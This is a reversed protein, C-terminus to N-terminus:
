KAWMMLAVLVIQGLIAIWAILTMLVMLQKSVDGEEIAEM